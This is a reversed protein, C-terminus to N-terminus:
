KAKKAGVVVSDQPPKTQKKLGARTKAKQSQELQRSAAKADAVSRAQEETKRGHRVNRAKRRGKSGTYHM